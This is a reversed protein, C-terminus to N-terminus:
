RSFVQAAALEELTSHIRALSAQLELTRAPDADILERRIQRERLRLLLQEATREDIGESTARADLEALLGVLDGEPEAGSLLQERLRRLEERDFHEPGLEALVPILSRHAAVGALASQELREGADLLRASVRGTSSASKSPALGQQTEKPLDLKDAAYRIADQREPSEEFRALVERVRIFGEQRDAAREIELRVRYGLYTEARGLRTDFGEALDAPDFGAPLAVVRVDLGQAAALEMGRLTATEGAADGDFCLWVRNTLRSLEKLQRETLATGMSAVVPEIGTQSLALVDTNGEVVVAREQKAIAARARDLGYLLDGKRFLEGEPSNVYKAKLPDDERLKRAQFGLVRGRADALPFLLRGFFYDNGRRNGLGAALLEDRTFGRELAKRTLTSGGPALGLRYQRCVDEGLGRGALYDRALSGAQSDWLYREYFSAAAELVELLRERRRRRADQEPSTEEYEIQVNFRDALWEIAGAFDLQETERVFTILDGKAGCGFCYYLKDVANVSFSPTREEHFPCRGVYRAGAKRLPSRASVVSVMDAAAKVEDVSADKIRSM